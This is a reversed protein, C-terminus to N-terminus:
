DGMQWESARKTRQARRAVGRLGSCLFSFFVLLLVSFYYHNGSPPLLVASVDVLVGDRPCGSSHSCQRQQWRCGNTM